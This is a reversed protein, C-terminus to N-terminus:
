FGASRTTLGCPSYCCHIDQTIQVTRSHAKPWSKQAHQLKDIPSHQQYKQNPPHTPRLVYPQVQNDNYRRKEIRTESTSCDPVHPFPIFTLRSIRNWRKQKTHTEKFGQTVVKQKDDRQTQANFCLTVQAKPTETTTEQHQVQYKACKERRDQM